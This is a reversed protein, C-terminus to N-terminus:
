FLWTWGAYPNAARFSIRSFKKQIKRIKSPVGDFGELWMSDKWKRFTLIQNSHLAAKEVYLNNLCLILFWNCSWFTDCVNQLTCIITPWQLDCWFLLFFFKIFIFPKEQLSFCKKKFLFLKKWTSSLSDSMALGGTQKSLQHNQM